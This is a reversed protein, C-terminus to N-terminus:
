LAGLVAFSGGGTPGGPNSVLAVEPARVARCAGVDAGLGALVRGCYEGHEDAVEVVRLGSLFGTM